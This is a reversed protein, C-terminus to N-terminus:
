DAVQAANGNPLHPQTLLGTHGLVLAPANAAAATGPPQPPLVSQAVAGTWTALALDPSREGAFITNSTGDTIEMFRPQSNRYFVGNGIGGTINARMQPGGFMAVYNGRAIDMIPQNAKNQVTFFVPGFDSPCLHLALPQTKVATPAMPMGKTLDIQQYLN